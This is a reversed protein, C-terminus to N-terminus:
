ATIVTFGKATAISTDCTAAGPNNSINIVQTGSANGLSAFMENLGAAGMSSQSINFGLRMGPLVVKRLNSCDTLINSASTVNACNSFVVETVHSGLFCFDLNTVNPANVSIKNLRRTQEFCRTLNAANTSFSGIERITSNSFGEILSSGGSFSEISLISTRIFVRDANVSNGVVLDNLEIVDFSGTFCNQATDVNELFNDPFNFERLSTM